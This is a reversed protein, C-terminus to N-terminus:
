RPLIRWATVGDSTSVLLIPGQGWETVAVGRLQKGYTFSDVLQGDLDLWHIGGDATAIIWQAPPTGRVPGESVPELPVQHIGFPLPHRWLVESSLTFSVAEFEGEPGLTLAVLDTVGDENLDAGHLWLVTRNRFAIEGVRQGDPNIRAIAGGLGGRTDVALIERTANLRDEYWVVCVADSLSRNSWLRKGEASVCQIGAISWYGVLLEQTGDGNVDALHVDAIGPHPYQEADPPFVLIPQWKEDFVTLELGPSAWGVFYRTGDANTGWRLFHIPKDVRPSLQYSEGVKGELSLQKLERGGSVVFLEHTRGEQGPVIVFVGPETVDAITWLEELRFNKPESRPAVKIGVPEVGELAPFVYLDEQLCKAFLKRFQNVNRQYVDLLEQYVHQGALVRELRLQMQPLLDPSTGTQYHEILGDSGVLVLTPLGAIDLAAGLAKQPDRAIPITVRLASFFNELEIDSRDAEDFNIAWFAVKDSSKYMKYLVEVLPLTERCVNCWTAWFELVTVKGVLDERTLLSGDLKVVQFDPFSKGLWRIHPPTLEEVVDIGEEIRFSFVQDDSPPALSAGQLEATIVINRVRAPPFNAALPASPFEVRRVTLSQRDIWLVIAGEPREVAVRDCLAGDIRQPQLFRPPQAHYLLSHLPDKAALFLLQIPIWFAPRTPGEVLATSLEYDAYISSIDLEAPAPRRLIQAPLAASRGYMYEGDSVAIGNYCQIRFRNPRAYLVQYDGHMLLTPQGDVEAVVQVFGRDHYGEASRYAAVVKELFSRPDEKRPEAEGAPIAEGAEDSSRAPLSLSRPGGPQGPAEVGALSPDRTAAQQQATLQSSEKGSSPERQGCGPLFLGLVGAALVLVAIRRIGDAGDQVQGRQCLFGHVALSMGPCRKKSQPEM